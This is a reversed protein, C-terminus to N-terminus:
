GDGVVLVAQNGRGKRLVVWRGYLVDGPGLPRDEAVRVGNLYIAGQSLQQRADRRSSALHTLLLAEVVTLEGEVAARSVVTSPADALASQLTREDLQAIEATFLVAAAAEARRAEDEGHVMATVEFALARQAQRREPHGATAEDLEEIRERPLFTFRRLFAGVEVDSTRLWFQFFAYPSTRAPDLWVSGSETKGFKTGDAKVVLPSTLGYAAVGRRRRILDIGETINGWQDSGGLQLECGFRDYLQLFDWAQLLMYSFETFSLFQERGDLRARVSDKRVMENVSFLKGVDRLFDLLPTTGLWDVNDVLIAGDDGAAADGAATNGAARDRADIDLFRAMQAAVGARNADLQEPSLLNREEGKGSPDGIMGTGGGILAIPRHGAAQFRRLLCLQQLHGVHLSDATPDFGIYLVLRDADIRGPLAAQDTLQHVLGRWSLDEFLSPV